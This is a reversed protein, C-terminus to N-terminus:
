RRPLSRSNYEKKWCSICLEHNSQVDPLPDQEPSAVGCSTCPRIWWGAVLPPAEVRALKNRQSERGGRAMWDPFSEGERREAAEVSVRANATEQQYLARVKQAFDEADGKKDFLIRGSGGGLYVEEGSTGRLIEKTQSRNLRDLMLSAGRTERLIPSAFLYAKVRQTEIVVLFQQDSM